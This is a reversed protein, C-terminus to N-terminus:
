CSVYVSAQVLLLAQLEQASEDHDWGLIDAHDPHPSPNLSTFLQGSSIVSAVSLDARGTILQSGPNAWLPNVVTWLHGLRWIKEDQLGTTRFVSTELRGDWERPLFAATTLQGTVKDYGKKKIFASLRDSPDLPRPWLKQLLPNWLVIYFVSWFTVRLRDLSYRPETHKKAM